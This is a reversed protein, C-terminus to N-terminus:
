ESYGGSLKFSELTKLVKVKGSPNDTVSDIKLTCDKLATPMRTGVKIINEFYYFNRNDSRWFVGFAMFINQNEIFYISPAASNVLNSPPFWFDDVLLVFQPM